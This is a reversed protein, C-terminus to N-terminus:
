LNEKEHAEVDGAGGDEAAPAGPFPAPETGGAPVDEFEADQVHDETPVPPADADRRLRGETFWGMYATDNPAVPDGGGLGDDFARQQLTREPKPMEHTEAHLTGTPTKSKPGSAGCKPCAYDSQAQSGSDVGAIVMGQNCSRCFCVDPRVKAASSAPSIMSPHSALPSDALAFEQPTPQNVAGSARSQLHKPHDRKQVGCHVCEGDPINLGPAWGPCMPVDVADAEPSM